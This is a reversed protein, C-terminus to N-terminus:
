KKVLGNECRVPVGQRFYYERSKVKDRPIAPKARRDLANPVEFVFAKHWLCIPKAGYRVLRDRLDSDEKNFGAFNEDLGNVAYFTDRWVAINRGYVKPERKKKIAIYFKNKLHMTYLRMMKWVTLYQEFEGKEVREPTLTDCYDYPLPVTAGACFSNESCNEKVTRVFDRHPICDGDTIIIVRGESMKVGENVIRAKRYGRNEQSVYKIPFPSYRKFNEILELTEGGSGDDAIVLEFDRVSQRKYGALLLRFARPQDFVSSIVSVAVPM